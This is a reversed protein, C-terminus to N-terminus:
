LASDNTLSRPRPNAVRRRWRGPSEGTWGRFARNFSSQDSFGLLFAVEAISVNADTLYEEALQGRVSDSIERFSTGAEVLKRQLTRVSMHLARAVEGVSGGDPLASAIAVQVDTRFGPTYQPIRRALIRAHEELVRALAADAGEIPLGWTEASFCLRDAPAGFEIPADFVHVYPGTNGPEVQRLEVRLVPLDHRIRMRIRTVLAAFVYDVYMPPVPGGDAMKLSLCYADRDRDITLTVADAILGFFRTFYRIGDGVTAAAGVLYDIVRYAGFPLTSPAVLQLAPDGTRDRLANWIGLVTPGPLRADPDELFDRTLGAQTVLDATEVGRAEATRLMALTSTAAITPPPKAM